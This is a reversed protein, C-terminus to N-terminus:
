FNLQGENRCSSSNSSWQSKPHLIDKPIPLNVKDQCPYSVDFRMVEFDGWGLNLGQHTWLWENSTYACTQLPEKPIRTTISTYLACDIKNKGVPRTHLTKRARLLESWWLFSNVSCPNSFFFLNSFSQCWRNFSCARSFFLDWIGIESRVVKSM